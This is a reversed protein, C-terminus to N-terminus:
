PTRSNEMTEQLIMRASRLDPAEAEWYRLHSQVLTVMSVWDERLEFRGSKAAALVMLANAFGQRAAYWSGHHRHKIRFQEIGQFVLSLALAACEETQPDQFAGEEAHIATFLFPRWVRERLELARASLMYRLENPPEPPTQEAIPFPLHSAAAEVQAELEQALRYLQGRPYALWATPPESYLTHTIRNSIRRYAIESLYYFWSQQFVPEFEDALWNGDAGDFPMSEDPPSPFADPYVVTCLSTPTLDIVERM